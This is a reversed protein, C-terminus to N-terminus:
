VNLYKIKLERHEGTEMRSLCMQLAICGLPRPSMGRKESYSPLPGHSLTRLYTGAQLVIRESDKVWREGSVNNYFPDMVSLVKLWRDHRHGYAAIDWAGYRLAHQIYANLASGEWRAGSGGFGHHALIMLPKWTKINSDQYIRLPVYASYGLYKHGLEACIQASLDLGNDLSFLPHNGSIHGIWEEPKTYKKIIKVFADKEAELIPKDSQWLEPKIKNPNFYKHKPGMGDISDGLDLFYTKRCPRSKLDEIFLDEDQDRVGIHIDAIFKVCFPEGLKVHISFPEAHIM